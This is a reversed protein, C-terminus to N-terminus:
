FVFVNVQLGTDSSNSCQVSARSIVSGAQRYATPSQMGFATSQNADLAFNTSTVVTDGFSSATGPYWRVQCSIVTKSGLNEVKFQATPFTQLRGTGSTNFVVLKVIPHSPAGGNLGFWNTFFGFGLAVAGTILAGVLVETTKGSLGSGGDAMAAVYCPCLRRGLDSSSAHSSEGLFVATV